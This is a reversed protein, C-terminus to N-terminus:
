PCQSGAISQISVQDEPYGFAELYPALLDQIARVHQQYHRWRALSRNYIPQSVDAFSPTAIYRNKAKEHFAIIEESWPLSLLDFVKGMSSRIDNVTDEYRLELYRPQMIPKITLWLDMVAAYQEAVSRWDTLNVTNLSPRFVQQFCSLCVDRPDRLAFLIRSEPFLSAILGIEISNLAVKNIFCHRAADFTKYEEGIRQWYLQRLDRAQQLGLQQLGLAIHDAPCQTLQRIEQTLGYILDNEDSSIVDPHAALIQETLTTGSRLFGMLFVPNPLSDEFDDVTWRTLVAAPYGSKNHAIIRFVYQKDLRTYEPQQRQYANAQQCTNFAEDHNGLKDLVSVLEQQARATQQPQLNSQIVKEFRSKANALDGSRAEIIALTNQFAPEQPHLACVQRAFPLAEGPRNVRLLYLARNNLAVPHLPELSLALETLQLSTQLDGWHHLQEALELVFRTNKKSRANLQLQAAAKQLYGLGESMRRQWCLAQGLGALAEIHDAEQNVAQQFWHTSGLLDKNGVAQYAHRLADAISDHQAPHSQKNLCCAKYKKGSQCPCPDNRTIKRADSQTPRKM